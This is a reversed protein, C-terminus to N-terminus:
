LEGLRCHTKICARLIELFVPAFQCNANCTLRRAGQHMSSAIPM